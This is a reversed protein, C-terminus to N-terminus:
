RRVKLTSAAQARAAATDPRPQGRQDLTLSAVHRGGWYLPLLPGGSSAAAYRGLTIRAPALGGLRTLASRLAAATPPAKPQALGRQPYNVPELRTPDLTITGVVVGGREVGARVAILGGPRREM